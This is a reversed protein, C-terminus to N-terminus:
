EAPRNERLQRRLDDMDWRYQGGPTTVAPVVAGDRAWRALTGRNIGLARAAEATTVLRESRDTM